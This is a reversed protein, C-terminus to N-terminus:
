IHLQQSIKRSHVSILTMRTKSRQCQVQRHPFSETEKETGFTMCDEATNIIIKSFNFLSSKSSLNSKMPDLHIIVKNNTVFSCVECVFEGIIRHHIKRVHQKLLDDYKFSSGCDPYECVYRNPDKILLPMLLILSV